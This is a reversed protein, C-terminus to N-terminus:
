HVDADERPADAAPIAAELPLYRAHQQAQFQHSRIAWLLAVALAGTCSVSVVLWVLLLYNTPTM